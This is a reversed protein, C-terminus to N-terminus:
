SKGPKERTYPEMGATKQTRIAKSLVSVFKLIDVLNGQSKLAGQMKATLPSINDSVIDRFTSVSMEFVMDPNDDVGRELAVMDHATRIVCTEEGIILIITKHWDGIMRKLKSTDNMTAVLAKIREYINM